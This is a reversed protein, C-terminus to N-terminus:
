NKSGIIYRPVNKCRSDRQRVDTESHMNLQCAESEQVVAGAATSGLIINQCAVLSSIDITISNNM